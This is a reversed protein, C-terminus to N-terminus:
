NVKKVSSKTSWINNPQSFCGIIKRRVTEELLKGLNEQRCQSLQLAFLEAVGLSVVNPTEGNFTKGIKSMEIALIVM